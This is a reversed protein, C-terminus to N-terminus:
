PVAGRWMQRVDAWRLFAELVGGADHSTLAVPEVGLSRFDRV